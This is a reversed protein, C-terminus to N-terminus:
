SNKCNLLEIENPWYRKSKNKGNVRLWYLPKEEKFHWSVGRIKAFIGSKRIIVDDGYNFEWDDSWDPYSFIFKNKIKFKHQGFTVMSYSLNEEIVKVLAGSLDYTNSPNSNLPTM